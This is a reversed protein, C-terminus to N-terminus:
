RTSIIRSEDLMEADTYSCGSWESGSHEDHDHSKADFDGLGIMRRSRTINRYNGTLEYFPLSTCGLLHESKVSVNMHAVIAEHVVWAKLKLKEYELTRKKEDLHSIRFTVKVDPVIPPRGSIVKNHTCVLMNLFFDKDEINFSTSMELLHCEYLDSIDITTLFHKAELKCIDQECVCTIGDDSTYPDFLIMNTTITLRGHISGEPTCYWAEVKMLHDPPEFFEIQDDDPIPVVKLKKTQVKV